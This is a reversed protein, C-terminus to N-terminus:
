LLQTPNWQSGTYTDIKNVLVPSLAFLQGKNVIAYYVAYHYIFSNYVSCDILGQYFFDPNTQPLQPM